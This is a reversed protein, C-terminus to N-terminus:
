LKRVQRSHRPCPRSFPNVAAVVVDTVVVAAVVMAAVVM